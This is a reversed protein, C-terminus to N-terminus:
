LIQHKNWAERVTSGAKLDILVHNESLARKNASTFVEDIVLQPVVIVGDQDAIIFDGPAVVVGGCIIEQRVSTVKMRGKYDYPLSGVGFASFGIELIQNVDRLPGDSVVGAAGNQKAATSFLEGWFASDISENTGVVAVEGVSLSDLYEIAPAYPDAQDYDTTPTFFIPAAFGRIKMDGTLPRINPSMANNRIGILDLSDSIMAVRVSGDLQIHTM